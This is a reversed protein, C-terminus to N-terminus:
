DQTELAVGKDLLEQIEAEGYGLEALVQRTDCGLAGAHTTHTKEM